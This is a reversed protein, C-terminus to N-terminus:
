LNELYQYLEKLNKNSLVSIINELEEFFQNIVEKVVENNDINIGEDNFKPLITYKITTVNNDYDYLSIVEKIAKKRTEASDNGKLTLKMIRSFWTLLEKKWHQITNTNEILRNYRILCWHIIIQPLLNDVQKIFDKRPFAYELLINDLLYSEVQEKIIQKIKDEEM